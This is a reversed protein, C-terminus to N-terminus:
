STIYCFYCGGGLFIYETCVSFLRITVNISYSEGVQLLLILYLLVM